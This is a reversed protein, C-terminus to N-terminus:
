ETNSFRLLKKKKKKFKLNKISETNLCKNVSYFFFMKCPFRCTVDNFHILNLNKPSFLSNGSRTVICTNQDFFINTYIKIYKVILSALMDKDVM